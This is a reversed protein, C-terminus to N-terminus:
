EGSKHKGKKELQEKLAANEKKLSENEARLEVENNSPKIFKAADIIGAYDMLDKAESEGVELTSDPALAGKSTHITRLSRNMLLITKEAKEAM